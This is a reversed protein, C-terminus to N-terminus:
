RCNGWCVRSYVRNRDKTPNVYIRTEFRWYDSPVQYEKVELYEGNFEEFDTEPWFVIKIRYCSVCLQQKDNFVPPCSQSELEADAFFGGCLLVHDWFEKYNNSIPRNELCKLIKKYYDVSDDPIDSVVRGELMTPLLIESIAFDICLFLLIFFKLKM